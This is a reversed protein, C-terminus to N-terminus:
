GAHQRKPNRAFGGCAGAFGLECAKKSLAEARAADRAVGNGEAYMGSLIHCAEGDDYDCALEYFRAAQTMDVDVGRGNAFVIAANFCGLPSRGRCGRESFTRGLEFDFPVGQGELYMAGLLSCAHSRSEQGNPDGPDVDDECSSRLLAAGRSPEAAVGMGDRYAIALNVCGRRNPSDCKTGNCGMRYLEVARKEDRVVGRGNQYYWGLDTCAPPSGGRCGDEYAALARAPDAEVGRGSNYMLGANYCGLPDGLDCSRVYLPTARADDRAVRTGTAYLYALHACGAPSGLDCSRQLVNLIEDTSASTEMLHLGLHACAEPWRKDCADRFIELARPRDADVGAGSWLLWGLRFCAAATGERCKQQLLDQEPQPTLRMSRRVGDRWVVVNVPDCGGDFLVHYADCSNGIRKGGVELLVDDKQIGALADPGGANMAASVVVGQMDGPVRHTERFERSMEGPEIGLTGRSCDSRRDKETAGCAVSFLAVCLALVRIAHATTM